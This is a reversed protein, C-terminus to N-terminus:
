AEAELAQEASTELLSTLFMPLGVV